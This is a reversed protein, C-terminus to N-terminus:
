KKALDALDKEQPGKLTGLDVDKLDEKATGGFRRVRNSYEELALRFQKVDFDPFLVDTFYLEAYHAQWIMLGSTRKSGGTRIILDVDPIDTKTDLNNRITEEDVKEIGKDIIRKVTRVIEDRGGYDFAFQVTLGTNQASEKTFKTLEKLLDVPLRDIRGIQRFRINNQMAAKKFDSTFKRMLNFLVRIEKDDRKWNETSFAWFTVYKIGQKSAETFLKMFKNRNKTVMIHGVWPHWKKGRAWRRNGDPIIAVHTPIKVQDM